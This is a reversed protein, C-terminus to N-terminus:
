ASSPMRSGRQDRPSPSTYLLCFTPHAPMWGKRFLNLQFPQSRWKRIIKTTDERDVYDLDGYVADVKKETFVDAIHALTDKSPFYDDSHLFGVVQGSAESIGKNLADYIGDDRESIVKSVVEFERIIELTSDTSAGDVIIYELEAHTQMAVSKLTDRITAESNFTSTILSIKM